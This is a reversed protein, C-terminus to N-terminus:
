FIAEKPTVTVSTVIDDVTVPIQRKLVKEDRWVVYYKGPRYDGSLDVSESADLEGGAMRAPFPLDFPHNIWFLEYYMKADSNNEFTVSFDALVSIPLFFIMLVLLITKM